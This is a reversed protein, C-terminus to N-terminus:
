RPAPGSSSPAVTVGAGVTEMRRLFEGVQDPLIHRYGAVPLKGLMRGADAYGIGYERAVESLVLRRSEPDEPVTTILVDVAPFRHQCHHCAVARATVPKGCRQCPVTPAVYRPPYVAHVLLSAPGLVAGLVRWRRTNRGKRAALWGSLLASVGWILVVLVLLEFIRM